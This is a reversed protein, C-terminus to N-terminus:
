LSRRAAYPINPVRVKFYDMDDSYQPDLPNFSSVSQDTPVTFRRVLNTGSIAVTCQMGRPLVFEVVGNEDTKKVLDGTVVTKNDIVAGVFETHIGVEVDSKPRGEMTVLELRAVVTSSSALGTGSPVQFPASFDSTALTSKNRYRIRYWYESSGHPDTFPYTEQGSVLGLRPERGYGFSAPEETPLGLNPAADGGTVRLENLLGPHITEVVLVGESTVYSNLLGLGQVVIQGAATEYDLPDTGTFTITIEYSNLLLELDDDVVNALPGSVPADPADPATMPVRARKWEEATLEEWPGRDTGRSRWVEILDFYGAWDSLRALIQLNVIETQSSM